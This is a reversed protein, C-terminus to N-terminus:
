QGLEKKVVAIMSFLYEPPESGNGNQKYYEKVAKKYTDLAPLYSKQLVQGDGKLSLGDLSAPNKALIQDAYQITKAADEAHWYYQGLRLLMSESEALVESMMGNEVKLVVANSLINNIAIELAYTGSPVAKLDEPSIGYCAMYYGNADLVAKGATSPNKMLRIPLEMANRNATNMGKWIVTTTWSSSGSGLTITETKRKNKEILAKEKDYDEQIMKGQKLLESMEQLRRGASINWRENAQAQQNSVAITFLVPENHFVTVEKEQNVKLSISVTTQAKVPCISFFLLLLLIIYASNKKM